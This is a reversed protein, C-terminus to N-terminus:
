VGKRKWLIVQGLGAPPVVKSDYHMLVKTYADMTFPGSPPTFGVPPYRAIGLSYRFEDIEGLEPPTIRFNGDLYVTSPMAHSTDTKNVGDIFFYGVGNLKEIVTHYWVGNVFAVNSWGDFDWHTAGGNDYHCTAYCPAVTSPYGNFYFEAGDSGYQQLAFTSGYNGSDLQTHRVWFEFTWDLDQMWFDTHAPTDILLSYSDSEMCGDGFKFLDPTTYIHDVVSPTWIKGSEDTWWSTKTTM